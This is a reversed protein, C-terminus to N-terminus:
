KILNYWLDVLEKRLKISEAVPGRWTARVHTRGLSHRQLSYVVSEGQGRPRQANRVYGSHLLMEESFSFTKAVTLCRLILTDPAARNKGTHGQPTPCCHGCPMQIHRFVKIRRYRLIELTM